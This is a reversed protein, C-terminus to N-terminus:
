HDTLLLPATSQSEDAEPSTVQVVEVDFEEDAWFLAISAKLEELTDAGDYYACDGIEGEALWAFGQGPNRYVKVEPM